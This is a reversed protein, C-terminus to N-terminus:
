PKRVTQIRPEGFDFLKDSLLAARVIFDTEALGKKLHQIKEFAPTPKIPIQALHFAFSSPNGLLRHVDSLDTYYHDSTKRRNPPDQIFHLYLLSPARSTSCASAARHVTQYVAKSFDALLLPKESYPRLLDLWGDVFERPDEEEPKRKRKLRQEVTPYRPETWKAEVAVALSESLIMADTHSPTGSGKPSSVQYEFHINANIPLNLFGLMRQFASWDDKVLAILPVTSRFPSKFAGKPFKLLFSDFDPVPKTRFFLSPTM